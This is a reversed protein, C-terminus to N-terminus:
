RGPLCLAHAEGVWNSKANKRWIEAAVECNELSYYRGIKLPMGVANFWVILVFVSGM